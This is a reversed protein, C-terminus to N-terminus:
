SRRRGQGARAGRDGGRPPPAAPGGAPPGLVEAVKRLADENTVKVAVKQAECSALLWVRVEVATVRAM